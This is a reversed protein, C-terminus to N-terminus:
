PAQNEWDIRRRLTTEIPTPEPLDLRSRTWRDDYYLRASALSLPAAPLPGPIGFRQALGLVRGATDTIWGRIRLKPGPMDVLECIMRMLAETDINHGVALFRDDDNGQEMAAILVRVVDDVDVINIGGSPAVPLGSRMARKIFTAIMGRRFPGAGLVLSPRVSIMTMEGSLAHAALEADRKTEMYPRSPPHNYPQRETALEGPVPIGIAAVSSVNVFREVGAERAALVMNRTGQVNVNHMANGGGGGMSVMAALHYVRDCGEAARQLSERDSLDGIVVPLDLGDFLSRRSNERMLLRPREGAEVLAGVLHSGILGTAGTVLIEAM